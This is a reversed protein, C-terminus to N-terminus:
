NTGLTLKMKEKVDHALKEVLEAKRIVALSLTDKDAKDVETKLDTALKLLLASEDTLIKKRESNVVEFNQKRTQQDRMKMQQNADPLRDPQTNPIPLGQPLGSDRTQQGAGTACAFAAIAALCALTRRSHRGLSLSAEGAGNPKGPHNPKEGFHM